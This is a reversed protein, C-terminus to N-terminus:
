VVYDARRRRRKRDRRRSRSRHRVIPINYAEYPRLINIDRYLNNQRKYVYLM